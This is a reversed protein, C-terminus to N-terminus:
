FRTWNLYGYYDGIELFFVIAQEKPCIMNNLIKNNFILYSLMLYLKDEGDTWNNLM